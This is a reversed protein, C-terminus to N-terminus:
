SERKYIHTHTHTHTLARARTCTQALDRHKIICESTVNKDSLVASSLCRGDKM